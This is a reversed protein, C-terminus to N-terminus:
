YREELNKLILCFYYNWIWWNLDILVNEKEKKEKILAELQSGLAEQQQKYHFLTEAWKREMAEWAEVIMRLEKLKEDQSKMLIIKAKLEKNEDQM